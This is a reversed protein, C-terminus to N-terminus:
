ADPKKTYPRSVWFPCVHEDCGSIKSRKWDRCQLCHLKAQRGLDLVGAWSKVLWLRYKMPAKTLVRVRQGDLLDPHAELFRIVRKQRLFDRHVVPDM